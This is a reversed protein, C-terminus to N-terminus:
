LVPLAPDLRTRYLARLMENFSSRRSGIDVGEHLVVAEAAAPVTWPERDISRALDDLHVVQEVIRTKLYEDLSITLQGGAVGLFREEPEAALRAAVVELKAALEANLAAHGMAAVEAGRERIARHDSETSLDMLRAFYEAASEVRPADPLAADLYDVVVWVAGRALHGALGGVRQGELVSPADWREGVAPDAVADRVVRATEVFLARIGFLDTTM